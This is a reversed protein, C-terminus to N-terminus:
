RTSVCGEYTTTGSELVFATDGKNWFVFSEDANAFRAGSGSIARPLSIERGDSLKLRVTDDIFTASFSKGHACSFIASITNSAPVTVDPAPKHSFYYLSGLLLTAVVFFGFAM